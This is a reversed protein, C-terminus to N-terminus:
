KIPISDKAKLKTVAEITVICVVLQRLSQRDMCDLTLVEQKLVKVGYELTNPISDYLESPM